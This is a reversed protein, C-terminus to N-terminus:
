PWSLDCGIGIFGQFISPKLVQETGGQSRLVFGRTPASVDAAGDLTLGLWPM